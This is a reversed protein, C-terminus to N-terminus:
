FQGIAFFNCIYKWLKELYQIFELFNALDPWKVRVIWTRYRGFDNNQNFLLVSAPCPWFQSFIPYRLTFNFYRHCLSWIALYSNLINPWLIWGFAYFNHWLLNFFKDLLIYLIVIKGFHRFKALDPWLSRHAIGCLSCSSM